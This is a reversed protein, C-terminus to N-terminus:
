INCMCGIVYLKSMEDTLGAKHCMLFFHKIENFHSKKESNKWMKYKDHFISYSSSKEQKVDFSCTRYHFIIVTEM